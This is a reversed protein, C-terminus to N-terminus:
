SVRLVGIAADYAHETWFVQKRKADTRLKPREKRGPSVLLRAVNVM